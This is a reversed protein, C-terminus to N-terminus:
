SHAELIRLRRDGVTELTVKRGTSIARCVEIEDAECTFEVRPMRAIARCADLISEHEVVRTEHRVKDKSVPVGKAVFRSSATQALELSWRM